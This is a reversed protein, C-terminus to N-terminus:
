EIADTAQATLTGSKVTVVGFISISYPISATVSVQNGQLWNADSTCPATVPQKNVFLSVQNAQLNVGPTDASNVTETIAPTCPDPAGRGLSFTRAGARVADTLAIYRYFVLGFSTIGTAVMLLIPLVLAFEVLAQGDDRRIHAFRKMM